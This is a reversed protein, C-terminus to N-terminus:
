EPASPPEANGELAAALARHIEEYVEVSRDLDLADLEDLQSLAVDVMRGDGPGEIKPSHGDNM